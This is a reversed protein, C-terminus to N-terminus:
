DIQRSLFFQSQGQWRHGEPLPDMGDIGLTVFQSSAASGIVWGERGLEDMVAHEQQLEKAGGKNSWRALVRSDEATILVAVLNQIAVGPGSSFIVLSGYRWQSAM